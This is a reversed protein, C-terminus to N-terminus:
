SVEFVCAQTASLKAKAIPRAVFNTLTQIGVKKKPMSNKRDM